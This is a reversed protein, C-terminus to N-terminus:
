ITSNIKAELIEQLVERKLPKNIFMSVHKSELVRNHDRPDLSSSLMMIDCTDQVVQPLKEFMELFDFGNVGPMNIDLFILQPLAAGDHSNESLYDLGEMASEKVVVEEAFGAKKISIEAIYRDISNDDIVLVKRFM